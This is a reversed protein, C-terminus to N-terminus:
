IDSPTEHSMTFGHNHCDSSYCKAQNKGTQCRGGAVCKVFLAGVCGTGGVSTSSSVHFVSGNQVEVWGTHATQGLAGLDRETRCHQINIRLSFVNGGSIGQAAWDVAAITAINDVSRHYRVEVYGVGHTVVGSCMANLDGETQCGVVVVIEFAAEQSIFSFNLDNAD